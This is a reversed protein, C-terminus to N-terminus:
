LEVAAELSAACKPVEGKKVYREHGRAVKGLFRTLSQVIRASNPVLVFPQCLWLLIIHEYFFHILFFKFEKVEEEGTKYSFLNGLVFLDFCIM